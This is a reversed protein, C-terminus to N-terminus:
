ADAAGRDLSRAYVMWYVIIVISWGGLGFGLLYAIPLLGGGLLALSIWFCVDAEGFYFLWYLSRLTYVLRPWVGPDLRGHNSVAEAVKTTAPADKEMCRVVWLAYLRTQWLMVSAVCLVLTWADGTEAFVRWGFAAMTASLGIADTIKDLFGGLASSSGRYRAIRGDVHDLVLHVHLLVVAAIDNAAGGKLICGVALLRCVFAVVTVINPTLWRVEAIAAAIVSGLPGGCTISWWDFDRESLMRWFRQTFGQPPDGPLTSM